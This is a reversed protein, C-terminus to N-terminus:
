AEVTLGSIRRQAEMRSTTTREQSDFSARYCAYYDCFSMEQSIEPLDPTPLRAPRPAPPPTPARFFPPDPVQPPTELKIVIQLKKSSKHHKKTTNKKDSDSSSMTASPRPKTSSSSISHKNKSLQSAQDFEEKRAKYGAADLYALRNRRSTKSSAKSGINDRDAFKGLPSTRGKARYGINERHAQKDYQSIKGQAKYDDIDQGALRDSFPSNHENDM